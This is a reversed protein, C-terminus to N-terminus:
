TISFPSVPDPYGLKESFKKGADLLLDREKVYGDLRDRICMESGM